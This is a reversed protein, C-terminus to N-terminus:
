KTIKSLIFFWHWYKVNRDFSWNIFRCCLFLNRNEQEFKDDCVRCWLVLRKTHQQTSRPRLPYLVITVTIKIGKHTSYYKCLFDMAPLLRYITSSNIKKWKNSVFSNPNVHFYGLLTNIWAIHNRLFMFNIGIKQECSQQVTELNNKRSNTPRRVIQNKIKIPLGKGNQM